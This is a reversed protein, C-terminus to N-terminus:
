GLISGCAKGFSTLNRTLQVVMEEDFALVFQATEASKQCPSCKRVLIDLYGQVTEARETLFRMM